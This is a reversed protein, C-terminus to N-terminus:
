RRILSELGGARALGQLYSVEVALTEDIIWRFVKRAIAPDLEYRLATAEVTDLLAAERAEDRLAATLSGADEVIAALGPTGAVKAAAIHRGINIRENLLNLLDADVYVTEGFTDPDEGPDCMEEVVALYFTVLDDAIPIEVRLADDPRVARQVKSALGPAHVLPYQDPFAFRGLSAHYQELGELSFQLFSIGSRGEIPVADAQYVARNGPFRSRDKLRSIIRGTMQDLRVRVEQLDYM